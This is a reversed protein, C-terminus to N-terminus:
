EFEDFKPEPANFEEFLKQQYDPVQTYLQKFAKQGNELRLSTDITVYSLYVTNQDISLRLENLNNNHSLLYGSRTAYLRTEKQGFPDNIIALLEDKKIFEGAKRSYTIIGGDPSREWITKKFVLPAVKPKQEGEQMENKQLWRLYLEMQPWVESM